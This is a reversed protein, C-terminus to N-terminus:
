GKGHSMDEVQIEVRPKDPAYDGCIRLDICAFSDDCIVKAAVLGDLIMKGSYNDPDRRRKDPFYYKLTVIAKKIPKKPAPKCLLVCLDKWRKKEERYEWANERGAFRNLSKPIKPIIYRM